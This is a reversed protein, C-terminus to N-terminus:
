KRNRNLKLLLLICYMYFHFPCHFPYHQMDSIYVITINFSTDDNYMNISEKRRRLSRESEGLGKNIKM